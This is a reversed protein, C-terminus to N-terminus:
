RSPLVPSVVGACSQRGDSPPSCAIASSSQVPTPSCEYHMTPSAAASADEVSQGIAISICIDTSACATDGCTVPAAPGTPSAAGPPAGMTMMRQDASATTTERHAGCGFGTVFGVILTLARLSM